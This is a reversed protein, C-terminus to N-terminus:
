AFWLIMIVIGAMVGSSIAGHWLGTSSNRAALISLGASVAALGGSMWYFIPAVTPTMEASGLTVVTVAASAVDTSIALIATFGIVLVCYASWAITNRYSPILM